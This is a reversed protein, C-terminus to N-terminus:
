YNEVIRSALETEAEPVIIGDCYLSMIYRINKEGKTEYIVQVGCECARNLFNYTGYNIFGDEALDGFPCIVCRFPYDKRGKGKLTDIYFAKREEPLACRPLELEDLKEAAPADAPVCIFETDSDKLLENLNEANAADVAIMMYKDTNESIWVADGPYICIVADQEEDTERLNHWILVDFNVDSIGDATRHLYYMGLFCFLTVAILLVVAFIMASLRVQKGTQKQPDETVSPTIDENEDNVSINKEDTRPKKEKMDVKMFSECASRGGPVPDPQKRNKQQTQIRSCQMMGNRDTEPMRLYAPIFAM